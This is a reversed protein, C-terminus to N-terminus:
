NKVESGGWEVLTFGKRQFPKLEQPPVAMPFSLPKFAM